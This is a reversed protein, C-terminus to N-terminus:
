LIYTAIQFMILLIAIFLAFHKLIRNSMSKYFLQSGNNQILRVMNLPCSVLMILSFLGVISLAVLFLKAFFYNLLIPLLFLLFILTVTKQLTPLKDMKFRDLILDRLALSLTIFATTVSITIFTYVLTIITTSHINEKLIYLLQYVSDKDHLHILLASFSTAGGYIFINGFIAIIWFTYIILILASACLIIRRIDKPHPGVYNVITPIIIHASFTTALVPIAIVLSKFHSINYVLLKDLSVSKLLMLIAVLIIVLKISLFMRNLWEAYNTGKLIFGGFIMVFIVEILTNNIHFISEFSSGVASIYATLMGYLISFACIYVLIIGPKKFLKHALGLYSIGRDYHLCAEAVALTSYTMLIWVLFMIACGIVTGFYSLVMPIALIGGGLSTGIILFICGVQKNISTM